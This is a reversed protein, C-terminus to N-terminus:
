DEEWYSITRTQTVNINQPQRNKEWYMLKLDNKIWNGEDDHSTYNNKMTISMICENKADFVKQTQQKIEDDDNYLYENVSRINEKTNILIRKILRSNEDYEFTILSKAGTPELMAASLLYGTPSYVRDILDTGTSKGQPDFHEIGNEAVPNETIVEQVSGKLGMNVADKYYPTTNLYFVKITRSKDDHLTNSIKIYGVNTMTHLSGDGKAEFNGYQRQLKLLFYRNNRDYLAFTRYPGSTVLATSLLKTKEDTEIVLNSKIGYYDGHFYYTNPEDDESIVREFGISEIAPVFVSDPGELPVGM